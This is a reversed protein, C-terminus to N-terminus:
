DQTPYNGNQWFLLEKADRILMRKTEPDTLSDIMSLLEDKKKITGEDVYGDQDGDVWPM